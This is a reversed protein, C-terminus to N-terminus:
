VVVASGTCPGRHSPSRRGAANVCTVQFDGGYSPRKEVIYGKNQDEVNTAWALDVVDGSMRWKMGESSEIEGRDLISTKKAKGGKEKRMLDDLIAEEDIQKTVWPAYAVGQENYLGKRMKNRLRERMEVDTEMSLFSSPRASLRRVPQHLFAQVTAVAVVVLIFLLKSM